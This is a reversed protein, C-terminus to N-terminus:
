QSSAEVVKVRMLYYLVLMKTHIVNLHVRDSQMYIDRWVLIEAFIYSRSARLSPLYALLPWRQIASSIANLRVRQRAVSHLALVVTM